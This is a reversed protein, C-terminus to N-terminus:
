QVPDGRSPFDHLYKKLLQFEQEAFPTGDPHFVDHQWLQPMPDGQKSGWPMYTQTRGAVLGWQYAGIRERALIPLIAEFTNGAGRCLWETCLIPRQFRDLSQIKETVGAAADYGHFSVIDSMQALTQSMPDDFRAWVGITLPQDPQSQRAWRFTESALPLSKEWLGSNGPENYLDWLLVRQDHGFRDMLDRIYRELEPWAARDEVRQLGPSPVWGSNHVGPLPEDQRGTYPERGAFACDCFPVWMVRMQHKHAIALFKDMRKKLGEPDAKWVVFQVFVRLSNYGAQEAWGLEQDITEPDFTEQQWMETSNVATRPLYNCGALPGVQAYWAWARERTWQGDLLDTPPSPSDAVQTRPPTQPANSGAASPESPKVGIEQWAPADLVKREDPLQHYLRVLTAAHQPGAAAYTRLGRIVDARESEPLDLHKLRTPLWEQGAYRDMLRALKAATLQQPSIGAAIVYDLFSNRQWPVSYKLHGVKPEPAGEDLITISWRKTRSHPLEVSAPAIGERPVRSEIEQASLSFLEYDDPPLVDMLRQRGEVTACLRDPDMTFHAPFSQPDFPRVWDKAIQDIPVLMDATSWFANVPCTITDLQSLPAHRYWIPEDTDNGFVSLAHQAIGAVSAFVPLETSVRAREQETPWDKTQLFFAANYGWNVPPVDAAAGALPFTEAALMLTMYGGASGGGIVVRSDDVFPLARAIHLLAADPNPTRVLPNAELERPTVVAYGRQLQLAAGRDDLEYGAAYYLPVRSNEENASQPLYLKAKGQVPEGKTDLYTYEALVKVAPSTAAPLLSAEVAKLRSAVPEPLTELIKKAWAPGQFAMGGDDVVDAALSVTAWNAAHNLDSGWAIGAQTEKLDARFGDFYALNLTVNEGPKTQLDHSDGADLPVAWEITCFGDRRGLAGRGDQHVDDADQGPTTVHKDAYLGPIVIKRDDGEQLDTGRCFALLAFDIDVPMLSSNETEDPVQIAVYLANASNMIWLRCARPATLGVDRQMMKMDFSLSTAAKWEDDHVVGDIVPAASCAGSPVSSPLEVALAAQCLLLWSTLLSFIPPSYHM